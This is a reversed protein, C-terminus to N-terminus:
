LFAANWVGTRIDRQENELLDGFVEELTLQSIEHNEAFEFFLASIEDWNDKGVDLADDNGTGVQYFPHEGLGEQLELIWEEDIEESFFIFRDRIVDAHLGDHQWIQGAGIIKEFYCSEESHLVRCSDDGLEYNFIYLCGQNTAFEPKGDGDLDDYYCLYPFNRYAKNELLDEFEIGTRWLDQYYVQEGSVDYVPMENKLIKLYAQLYLRNEEPTVDMHPENVTFDISRVQECVEEIKQEASDTEQEALIETNEYEETEGSIEIVSETNKVIAKKDPGIMKNYSCVGWLTAAFFLILIIRLFFNKSM